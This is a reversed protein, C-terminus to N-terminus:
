EYNSLDEGTSTAHMLGFVEGSYHELTPMITAFKGSEIVELYLGYDVTHYLTIYISDNEQDVDIDLGARADGTRDEWPANDKAYDLIDPAMRLAIEEAAEMTIAGGLALAPTITDELLFFGPTTM